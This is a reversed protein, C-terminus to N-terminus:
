LQAKMIVFKGIELLGVTHQSMLESGFPAEFQKTNHNFYRWDVNSFNQDKDESTFVVVMSKIDEGADIKRVLELLMQRLNSYYPTAETKGLPTIESM